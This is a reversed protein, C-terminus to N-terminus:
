EHTGVEEVALEVRDFHLFLIHGHKSKVVVREEDWGIVVGNGAPLAKSDDAQWLVPTGFPFAQHVYGIISKEIAAIRERAEAIQEIYYDPTGWTASM